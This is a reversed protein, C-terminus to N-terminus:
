ILLVYKIHENAVQLFYLPFVLLILINLKKAKSLILTKSRKYGNDSQGRVKKVALNNKNLM